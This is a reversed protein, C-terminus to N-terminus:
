LLSPINRACLANRKVDDDAEAALADMLAARADPTPPTAPLATAEEGPATVPAVVVPADFSDAVPADDEGESATLLRTGRTMKAPHTATHVEKLKRISVQTYIQTTSLNEHGLMEQIFRIDAGAELMLTAMTHRFLHCSGSKDIGAKEVYERVLEGLWNHSLGEGLITLFLAGGDPPVVLTPRIETLYKRIWGLAREGIPIMRDKKGKGERVMITGRSADLDFVTLGVLEMRRVGTSYLTELIARDRLGLPTMLDPQDIVREAEAANMVNRPLRKALRPLELDAAVNYLIVNNKALWKFFNKLTMLRSYQTRFSLPWGEATRCHFLYRQYRALVPRTVENPRVVGREECWAIFYGVCVRHKHVTGKAYGRVAMQELFSVLHAAMGHPDTAAGAVRPPRKRHGIRAM